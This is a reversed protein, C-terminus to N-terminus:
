GMLLALTAPLPRCAHRPFLVGSKKNRDFWQVPFEHGALKSPMCFHPGNDQILVAWHVFILREGTNGDSCNTSRNVRDHPPPSDRHSIRLSRAEPQAAKKTSSHRRSFEWARPWRPPHQAYGERTLPRTSRPSACPARVRPWFLLAAPRRLVHQRMGCPSM